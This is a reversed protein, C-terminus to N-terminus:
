IAEDVAVSNCKCFRFDYRNKSEIEEGCLNCRVKNLLIKKM